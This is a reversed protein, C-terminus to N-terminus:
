KKLNMQSTRKCNSFQLPMKNQRSNLVFVICKTNYSAIMFIFVCVGAGSKLLLYKLKLIIAIIRKALPSIVM